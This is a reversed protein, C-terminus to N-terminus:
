GVMAGYEDRVAGRPTRYGQGLLVNDYGQDYILLKMEPGAHQQDRLLRQEKFLVL